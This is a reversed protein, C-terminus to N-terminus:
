ADSHIVESVLHLLEVPRSDDVFAKNTELRKFLIDLKNQVEYDKL